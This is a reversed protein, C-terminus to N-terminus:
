NGLAAKEGNDLDGTNGNIYYFLDLSCESASQTYTPSFARGEEASYDGESGLKGYLYLFHSGGNYPGHGNTYSDNDLFFCNKM